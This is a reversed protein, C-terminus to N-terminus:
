ELVASSLTEFTQDEDIVAVALFLAELHSFWPKRVEVKGFERQFESDLAAVDLLAGDLDFVIVRSM